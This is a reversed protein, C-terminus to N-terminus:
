KTRYDVLLNDGPQPTQLATFTITAGAMTYDVTPTLRVGNRYVQESGTVILGKVALTSAGTSVTAENVTWLPVPAISRLVPPSVTQDLVISAPDLTVLLFQPPAPGAAPLYLLLAPLTSPSAPTLQGTSVKTQGWAATSILLAILIKM